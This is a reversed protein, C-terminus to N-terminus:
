PNALATVDVQTLERNHLYVEDIAGQYGVNVSSYSYYCSIRYGIFLYAYASNISFPVVGSTGFYIGNFYLKYGSAASQTLTIHTWTNLPVFPGTIIAPGSTTSQVFLQGVSASSYPLQIGLLNICNSYLTAFTPPMAQVFTSSIANSPNIWMSISYPKSTSVGYPFNYIGYVQFYSSGGIFRMAENVRGTVTVTSSSTGNLKNPGNDNNPNPLDFSYYVILSADRLIEEAPKARTTVQLNDIYGNFYNIISSYVQSSGILISGNQGQYPAANSKIADQVGNIYLIQQQTQYNYVFAVHYWTPTSSIDTTGSLDNSTFGIYLRSGRTIFYLCRNACGSCQCQGFIARDGTLLTPYIWAEITFSRLSLNLFPTTVSVYQSSSSVLYLAQGYGVIPVSTSSGASFSPSNMTLGNYVGYM